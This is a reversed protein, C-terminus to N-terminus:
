RTAKGLTLVGGVIVGNAGISHSGSGMTDCCVASVSSASSSTGNEHHSSCRVGAPSATRM